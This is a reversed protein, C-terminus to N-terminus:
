LRFATLSNIENGREAHSHRRRREVDHHDADHDPIRPSASRGVPHEWSSRPFLSTCITEFQATLALEVTNRGPSMPRNSDGHQVPVAHFTPRPFRRQIVQAM